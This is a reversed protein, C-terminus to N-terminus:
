KILIDDYWAVTNEDPELTANFLNIRDVNDGFGAPLPIGETIRQCDVYLDFTRTTWDINRLEIRLWKGVKDPDKSAANSNGGRAYGNYIYAAALADYAYTNITANDLVLYGLSMDQVAAPVYVRYSAYKPQAATFTAALGTKWTYTNSGTGLTGAGSIQLTRTANAAMGGAPGPGLTTTVGSAGRDYLTGYHRGTGSGTFDDSGEFDEEFLVPGAPPQICTNNAPKSARSEVLATPLCARGIHQFNVSDVADVNDLTAEDWILTNQGSPNTSAPDLASVLFQGGTLLWKGNRLAAIGYKNSSSESQPFIERAIMTEINVEFVSNGLTIDAVLLKSAGAYSIQGPWEVGGLVPVPAGGAAPIRVVRNRDDDAVLFSGDGLVLLSQIGFEEELAIKDFNGDLNYALVREKPYGSTSNVYLKNATFAFTHEGQLAAEDPGGSVPLFHPKLPADRFTGDTNWRQIGDEGGATWICQDPGQTAFEHDETGSAWYSAAPRKFYGLFHGDTPDFMAIVGSEEMILLVERPGGECTGGSPLSACNLAFPALPDVPGSDSGGDTGGDGGGTGGDSDSADGGSASDAAGTDSTSSDQDDSTADASADRRTGADDGAAADSSADEDDEDGADHPRREDEEKCAALSLSCVCALFLAIAGFPSRAQM